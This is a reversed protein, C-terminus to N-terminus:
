ASSGTVLPAAQHPDVVRVTTRQPVEADRDGVSAIQAALVAHGLLLVDPKRALLDEVELLDAREDVDEHGESHVLDAERSALREQPAVQRAEDAEEGRLRPQTVERDRGVAHQEGLVRLRELLRPEAAHRHAEVGEAGISEGRERAASRFLTTYPFLTSRPPRRIM